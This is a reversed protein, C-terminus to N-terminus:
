DSEADVIVSAPITVNDLNPIARFRVRVLEGSVEVM